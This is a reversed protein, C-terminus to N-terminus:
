LRDEDPAGPLAGPLSAQPGAGPQRELIPFFSMRACSPSKSGQAVGATPDKKAEARVFPQGGAAPVRCYSLRLRARSLRRRPTHVPRAPPDDGRARARGVRGVDARRDSARHHRHLLARASASGRHRAGRRSDADWGEVEVYQPEARVLDEGDPPPEDLEVGDLRYGVCVRVAGRGRVVDLKTLALGNLGNVRVALRLAAADLWGCRRPRGTTAGFEQGAARWEEADAPSMETPFPGSGVRTCYAKTIGVVRDIRTPAVGAGTCAGGAVTSSSTVFPYTGNDIDLLTGQAGEFLVNRGSRVAADVARGADGVMPALEQGAREADAILADIEARGPLPQGWHTLIPGIEDLNQQVLERLRAPRGLDSVRM